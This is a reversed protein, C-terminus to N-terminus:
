PKNKEKRKKGEGRKITIGEMNNDDNKDDSKNTQQQQQKKVTESKWWHKTKRRNKIETIATVGAETFFIYYETPLKPKNKRQRRERAQNCPTIRPLWAQNKKHRVGSNTKWTFRLPELIKWRKSPKYTGNISTNQPHRSEDVSPFPHDIVPYILRSLSAKDSPFISSLSNSFLNTFM